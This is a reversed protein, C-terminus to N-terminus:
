GKQAIFCIEKGSEIYEAGLMDGYVSKVRLGAAYLDRTFEDKTFTHHWINVSKIERETIIVTRDLVTNHEDYRHFAELCVHPEGCLFGDEAYEWHTSEERGEIYLPTHIEVILLGNPKLLAYINELAKARSETPLTCFDYYILTILDFREVFDMETFDQCWYTIPLDKEKAASLAYDISRQSIDVGSVRYGVKHFEEAYIGPGCGLDLLDRYEETPAVSAIWKVHGRVTAHNRTAADCTPDLHAELMGKSIHEDTWLAITGKEYLAPKKLMEKLQTFM